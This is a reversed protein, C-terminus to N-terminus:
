AGGLIIGLRSEGRGHRCCDSPQLIGGEAEPPEWERETAAEQHAAEGKRLM